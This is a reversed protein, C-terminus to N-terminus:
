FSRQRVVIRTDLMKVPKSDGFDKHIYVLTHCSDTMKEEVSAKRVFRRKLEEREEEEREERFVLTFTSLTSAHPLIDISAQTQDDSQEEEEPDSSGEQLDKACRKGHKNSRVDLSQLPGFFNNCLQLGRKEYELTNVFYIQKTAQLTAIQKMVPSDPSLAM